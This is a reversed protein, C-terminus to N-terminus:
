LRRKDVLMAKLHAPLPPLRGQTLPITMKASDLAGRISDTLEAALRELDAASNVPRSPTTTYRHFHGLYNQSTARSPRGANAATNHRRAGACPRIIQGRGSRRIAGIARQPAPKYRKAETDEEPSRPRRIRAKTTQADTDMASPREFASFSLSRRKPESEASLPVARPTEPRSPASPRVAHAEMDSDGEASHLSSASSCLSRPAPSEMASQRPPAAGRHHVPTTPASADSSAASSPPPATRTLPGSIPRPRM